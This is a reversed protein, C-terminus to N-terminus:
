TRRVKANSIVNMTQNFYNISTEGSAGVLNPVAAVFTYTGTNTGKPIQVSYTTNGHTANGYLNVYGLEQGLCSQCNDLQDNKMGWIMGFDDWNQIYSASYVTVTINEGPIVQAPAITVSGVRANAFMSLTSLLYIASAFFKM